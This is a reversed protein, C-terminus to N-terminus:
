CPTRTILLWAAPFSAPQLGSRTAAPVSSPRGEVSWLARPRQEEVTWGRGLDGKTVSSLIFAMTLCTGGVVILIHKLM